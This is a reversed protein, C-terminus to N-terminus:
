RGNTKRPTAIVCFTKEVVDHKPNPVEWPSIADRCSLCLGRKRHLGPQLAGACKWGAVIRMVACPLACRERDAQPARHANFRTQVAYSRCAMARGYCASMVAIHPARQRDPGRACPVQRAAICPTMNAALCRVLSRDSIAVAASCHMLDLVILIVAHPLGSWDTRASRHLLYTRLPSRACMVTMPNKRM